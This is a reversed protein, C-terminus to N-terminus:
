YSRTFPTGTIAFIDTLNLDLCLLLYLQSEERWGIKCVKKLKGIDAPVTLFRPTALALAIGFEWRQFGASTVSSFSAM